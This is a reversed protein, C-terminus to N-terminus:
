KKTGQFVQFSRNAYKREASPRSVRPPPSFRYVRLRRLCPEVAFPQSQLSQECRRRPAPRHSVLVCPQPPQSLIHARAPPTGAFLRPRRWRWVHANRPGKSAAVDGGTTAEARSAHSVNKKQPSACGTGDFAHPMLHRDRGCHRGKILSM